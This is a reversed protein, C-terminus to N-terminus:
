DNLYIDGNEELTVELSQLYDNLCPGEVCEGDDIKFFADHVSCKMTKEFPNVDIKYAETLPVDQHPCNNVYARVEDEYKILVVGHKQGLAKVVLTKANSLQKFNAIPKKVALPALLNDLGIQQCKRAALDSGDKVAYALAKGAALANIVGANFVDGAGLSDIVKIQQAPHHNVTQNPSSFWAGNEGWTCILHAQPAAQRMAKLCEAGDKFGRQKAFHHSFFIVNAQTLIADIGIRDKEVELSIPQHTLFTKAINLMGPLHELNRGEFHLWDFDEIEIKAFFDFSVEPLDRYHVITRSGNSQSLNIYSTPTAGQIFKQTFETNIGREQLTKTIWKAQDDTAFTTCIAVEHKLQSLAYLTNAVNGGVQLTKKNARVESDEAPYDNISLIIDLVCNGIGLIKSM